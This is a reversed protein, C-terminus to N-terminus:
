AFVEEIIRKTRLANTWEDVGGGYEISVPGAFGADRAIRLTHHADFALHRGAADFWVTKAHVIGTYPAIRALDKYLPEPDLDTPPEPSGQRGAVPPFGGTDLCVKLKAPGVAEVIRVIVEPDTTLGGHNEITMQMGRAAARDALRRYSDITVDLPALPEDRAVYSSANSRVYKAGLDAAFDMWEEIEALDDERWGPNEVSINGADIPMSIVSLENRKLADKLEAVYGPERSPVHFACLEVQDVDVKPRVQALFELLTMTQPHPIQHPQKVGKDDRKTLRRPGLQEHLSWTSLALRSRDLRTGGPAQM